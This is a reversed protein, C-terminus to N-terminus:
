NVDNERMLRKWAREQEIDYQRIRLHIEDMQSSDGNKEAEPLSCILRMIEYYDDLIRGIGKVREKIHKHWFKVRFVVTYFVYTNELGDWIRNDPHYQFRQAWMRRLEKERRLAPGGVKCVVRRFLGFTIIALWWPETITSVTIPGMTTEILSRIRIKRM